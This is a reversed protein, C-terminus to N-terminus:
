GVIQLPLSFTEGTYHIEDGVESAWLWLGLYGGGGGWNVLAAWPVESELSREGFESDATWLRLVGGPDGGSTSASKLDGDDEFLTPAPPPGALGGPPRPSFRRRAQAWRGM